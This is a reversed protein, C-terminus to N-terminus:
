PAIERPPLPPVAFNAPPEGHQYREWMTEYASELHRTYRVTDFLPQTARNRELKAKVAALAGPDRALRLALAEYDELNATVLEPLDIAALQSAAMRGVFSSGACSVLPLGAWLADAATAGANYPVTDLFLGALRHRALHEPGEKRRAFVLRDPDIGREAAYARRNRVAAANGDLLWLVSGEVQRLLRLWADFVPPTIKHTNNFSCFVFGTDPLGEEARTPTRAPIPRTADTPLFIEPLWAINEGYFGEEGEPITTHDAIIYDIYDAAMTALYGLYNVQIPAPRLAFIDPQCWKKYGMLDVAIDVQWAKLMAAIERAGRDHADFFRDFSARLRGVFADGPAPRFSVAITEFRARDHREWVEAISSTVAHARFDASLYAVRIREHPYIEGRWLPLPAPPHREQGYLAAATHQVDSTTPLSLVMFPPAVRQGAALGAGIREVAPAYDTWDCCLLRAYHLTGLAYPHDPSQRLLRSFDEAAEAFRDTKLLATGRNNLAELLGPQLMLARDYGAIAEDYRGAALLANARNYIAEVFDPSLALAKDYSAIAEAHRGLQRLAGGRSNYAETDDPTLQLTRDFSVLAEDYRKLEVLAIGRNHLAAALDPHLRLAADFSALAEDYRGGALLANGLNYHAEVHGPNLAIARRFAASAEELEGRAQLASGLNDHAAANGPDLAIARRLADIAEAVHNQRLLCNGLAAQADAFGPALRLAVQYHAAAEGLHGSGGLAEALNYHLVPIRQNLSMARRLREIGAAVAGAQCLVLGSLHLADVDDPERALIQQCIDYGEQLAGSRCHALAAAFPQRERNLWGDLPDAPTASM